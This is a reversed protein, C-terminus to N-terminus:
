EQKLLFTKLKQASRGSLVIQEQLPFFLSTKLDVGFLDNYLQSALKPELQAAQVKEQKRKDTGLSEEAIM